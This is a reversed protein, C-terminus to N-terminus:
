ELPRVLLPQYIGKEKISEALENLKTEDMRKRPNTPSDELWEMPIMQYENSNSSVIAKQMNKIETFSNTNRNHPVRPSVDPTRM